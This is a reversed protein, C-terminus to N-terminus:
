QCNHDLVLLLAEENDKTKTWTIMKTKALIDRFMVGM